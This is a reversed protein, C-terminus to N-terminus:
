DAAELEGATVPEEDTEAAEDETEEALLPAAGTEPADDVETM